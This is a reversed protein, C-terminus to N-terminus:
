NFLGGLLGRLLSVRIDKIAADYAILFSKVDGLSDLRLFFHIVGERTLTDVVYDLNDETDEFRLTDKDTYVRIFGYTREVEGGQELTSREVEKLGAFIEQFTGTLEGEYYETDIVLALQQKGVNPAKPEEDRNIYADLDEAANISEYVAYADEVQIVYHYIDDLNFSVLTTSDAIGLGLVGLEKWAIFHDGIWAYLRRQMLWTHLEHLTNFEVTIGMYTAEIM